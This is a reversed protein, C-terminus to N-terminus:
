FRFIFCQYLTFKEIKHYDKKLVIFTGELDTKPLRFVCSNSTTEAESVGWVLSEVTFPGAAKSNCTLNGLLKWGGPQLQRLADTGLAVKASWNSLCFIFVFIFVNTCHGMYYFFIWINFSLVRTFLRDKYRKRAFICTCLSRSLSFKIMVLSRFIILSFDLVQSNKISSRPSRQFSM